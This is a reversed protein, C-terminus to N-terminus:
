WLVAVKPALEAVAAATVVTIAAKPSSLCTLSGKEKGLIEDGGGIFHNTYGM